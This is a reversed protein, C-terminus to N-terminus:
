AQKRRVLFVGLLTIFAGLIFLLSSDIVSGTKPLTSVINKITVTKTTKNGAKDTAIFSFSGNKTFTHSYVNLTGENTSATVIISKDTKSTTYPNIAIVPAVKDIKDIVIEKSATNGANDRIKIVITGNAKFTKSNEKTWTKGGDFSYAGNKNLGSGEDSASIKLIVDKNTWNAPNGSVSFAPPITDLSKLIVDKSPASILGSNDAAYVQCTGAMLGETSLSGPKDASCAAKILAAAELSAMDNYIGKPVLYLMGDKDSTAKITEGINAELTIDRLVPAKAPVFHISEAKIFVASDFSSDGSDAIALKITVPVNPTVEAECTLEKTYGLFGLSTGTSNNIHYSTGRTSNITVPTATGPLMAINKGGVFLAFVDNYQMDQNYEESAFIYRFSLKDSTPTVTFQLSVADQTAGTFGSKQYIATLDPDGINGFATGLHISAPCFVSAAKGTSLIIGDSFPLFAAGSFVAGQAPNGKYIINSATVETGTIAKVLDEKNSQKALVEASVLVPKLMSLPTIMTLFLVSLLVTLLKSLRKM